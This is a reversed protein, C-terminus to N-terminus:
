DVVKSNKIDECVALSTNVYIDGAWNKAKKNRSTKSAINTIPQRFSLFAHAHPSDTFTLM